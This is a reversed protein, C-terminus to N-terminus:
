SELWITVHKLYQASGHMKALEGLLISASQSVADDVSGDEKYMQTVLQNYQDLKQAYEKSIDYSSTQESVLKGLASTSAIFQNALMFPVEYKYIKILKSNATLVTYEMTPVLGHESAASELQESAESIGAVAVKLTVAESVRKQNLFVEPGPIVVSQISAIVIGPEQAEDEAPETEVAAIAPLQEETDGNNDDPEVAVVPPEVPPTEEPPGVPEEPTTVPPTEPPAVPQTDPPTVPTEPPTVTPEPPKNDTVRFPTFPAFRGALYNQALVTNMSLLFIFSAAVALTKLSVRSLISVPKEEARLRNMVSAALWPPPSVPDKMQHMVSLIERIQDVHERCSPCRKLHEKFAHERADALLGDLFLSTLKKVKTCNV